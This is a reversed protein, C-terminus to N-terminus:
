GSDTRSVLTRPAGSMEASALRDVFEADSSTNL